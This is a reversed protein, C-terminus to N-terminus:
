EEDKATIIFFGGLEGPRVFNAETSSSTHLLRGDNSLKEGSVLQGKKAISQAWATYEEVRDGELTGTSERLFLAFLPGEAAARAPRQGAVFGLGFFAIALVAAMLMTRLRSSRPRSARLEGVIREELEAPPREERPLRRLDEEIEPPWQDNM